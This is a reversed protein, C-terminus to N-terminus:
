LYWFFSVVRFSYTNKITIWHNWILIFNHFLFAISHSVYIGCNCYIDCNWYYYYQSTSKRTRAERIKRLRWKWSCYLSWKMKSSAYYSYYPRCLAWEYPIDYYFFLSIYPANYLCIIKKCIIKINKKSKKSFYPIISPFELKKNHFYM